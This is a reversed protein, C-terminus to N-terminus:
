VGGLARQATDGDAPLIVKEGAGVRTATAGGGHVREDFGGLEVAEVRLSVEGIEKSADAIVRCFAEGLEQGPVPFGSEIGGSRGSHRRRRASVTKGACVRLVPM